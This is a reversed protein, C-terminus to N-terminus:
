LVRGVRDGDEKLAYDCSIESCKDSETQVLGDSSYEVRRVEEGSRSICNRRAFFRRNM